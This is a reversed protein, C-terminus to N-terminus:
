RQTSRQLEELVIRTVEARIEDENAEEAGGQEQIRRVAEEICINLDASEPLADGLASELTEDMSPLQEHTIEALAEAVARWGEQLAHCAPSIGEANKHSPNAGKEVLYRALDPTEAM